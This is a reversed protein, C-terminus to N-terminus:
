VKKKERLHLYFLDLSLFIEKASSVTRIDSQLLAPVFVIGSFVHYLVTTVQVSINKQAMVREVDELSMMIKMEVEM